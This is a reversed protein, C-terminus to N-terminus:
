PSQGQMYGFEQMSISILIRTDFHLVCTFSDKLQLCLLCWLTHLCKYIVMRELKQLIEDQGHQKIDSGCDDSDNHDHFYDSVCAIVTSM